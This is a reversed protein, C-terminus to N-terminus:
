NLFSITEKKLFFSDRFQRAFEKDKILVSTKNNNACFDAMRDTVTPTVQDM